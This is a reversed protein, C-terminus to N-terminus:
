FGTAVEIAIVEHFVALSSSSGTEQLAGGKESSERGQISLLIAEKLETM